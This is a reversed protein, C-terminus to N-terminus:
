NRGTLVPESVHVESPRVLRIVKTITEPPLANSSGPAFGLILAPRERDLTVRGGMGFFGFRGSM